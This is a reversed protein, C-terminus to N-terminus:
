SKEGGIIRRAFGAEPLGHLPVAARVGDADFRHQRVGNAAVAHHTISPMDTRAHRDM